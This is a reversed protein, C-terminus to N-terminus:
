LEFVLRVQRAMCLMCRLGSETAAEIAKKIHEPSNACHFHDVITTTGGHLALSIDIADSSCRPVCVKCHGLLNELTFTM